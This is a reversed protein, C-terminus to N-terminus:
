KGSIIWNLDAGLSRLYDLLEVTPQRIGREVRSLTVMSFGKEAIDAQNLDLSLRFERIRGGIAEYPRELNPNFAERNPRPM